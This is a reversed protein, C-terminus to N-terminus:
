NIGTGAGDWAPSHEVPGQGAGPAVLNSGGMPFRQAIPVKAIFLGWGHLSPARAPNPHHERCGQTRGFCGALLRPHPSLKGTSLEGGALSRRLPANTEWCWGTGIRAWIGAAGRRM